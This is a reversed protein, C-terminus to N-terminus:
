GYLAELIKDGKSLKEALNFALITKFHAPPIHFGEKV